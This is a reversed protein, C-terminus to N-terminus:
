NSYQNQYGSSKSLECRLRWEVEGRVRVGVNFELRGFYSLLDHNNNKIGDLIPYGASGEKDNRRM